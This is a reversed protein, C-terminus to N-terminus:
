QKKRRYADAEQQVIGVLNGLFINMDVLHLGWQAPAEPGLFTMDGPIDNARAGNQGPHNSIALFNAVDNHSCEATILGPLTVFPTDITKGPAWPKADLLSITPFYPIADGTGGGLAAPNTCAAELGPGRSKGFLSTSSPQVTTRFSSFNVVCGVDTASHCLAMHKFDGGVDKGVPVELTTGALIAVVIRKQVPTGEIANQILGILTMSGQSHGILAVGRGNNYHALYYNWADQVDHYNRFMDPGIDIPLKALYKMQAGSTLQRYLPAFTRCVSGFRAFQQAVTSKIAPTETMDAFTGPGAVVTPYVYFCDIAPNKAPTFPQPVLTGDANVITANQGGSDSCVDTRGPLCAWNEPNAYNIKQDDPTGAFGAVSVLAIVGALLTKKM